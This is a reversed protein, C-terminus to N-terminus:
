IYKALKEYCSGCNRFYDAWGKRVMDYAPHNKLHKAFYEALILNKEDPETRKLYKAIQELNSLRELYSIHKDTNETIVNMIYDLENGKSANKGNM